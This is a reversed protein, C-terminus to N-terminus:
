NGGVEGHIYVDHRNTQGIRDYYDDEVRDVSKSILNLLTLKKGNLYRTALVLRNSGVKEVYDTFKDGPNRSSGIHYGFSSKKGDIELERGNEVDVLHFVARDQAEENVFLISHLEPIELYFPTTGRVNRYTRGNIKIYHESSSHVSIHQIPRRMEGAAIYRDTYTQVPRAWFCYVIVASIVAFVSLLMLRM